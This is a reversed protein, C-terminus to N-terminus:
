NVEVNAAHPSKKALGRNEGCARQNARCRLAIGAVVVGVFCRRASLLSQGLQYDYGGGPDLM